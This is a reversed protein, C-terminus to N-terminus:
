DISIKPTSTVKIVAKNTNLTIDEGPTTLGFSKAISNVAQEYTQFIRPEGQGLEHCSVLYGGQHQQIVIQRSFDGNQKM